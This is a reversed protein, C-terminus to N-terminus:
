RAAGSRGSLADELAKVRGELRLYDDVTGCPADVMVRCVDCAPDQMRAEKLVPVTQRHGYNGCASHGSQFYHWEGRLLAWGDEVTGIRPHPTEGPDNLSQAPQELDLHQLREVERRLHQNDERLTENEKLTVTLPRGTLAQILKLEQRLRQCGECEAM